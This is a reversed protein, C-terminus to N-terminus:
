EKSSSPTQLHHHQQVLQAIRPQNSAGIMDAPPAAIADGNRKGTQDSIQNSFAPTATAAGVMSVQQTQPHIVQRTAIVARSVINMHTVGHPGM